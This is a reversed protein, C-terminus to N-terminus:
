EFSTVPAEKKRVWAYLWKGGDILMRPISVLGGRAFLSILIVIGGFVLEQYDELSTIEDLIYTVAVAGVVPGWFSQIGGIFVFLLIWFSQMVGYESPSLVALFHAWFAGVMGAFFCAVGWALVRYRTVNIGLHQALLNNQGAATVALGLRSHEVRYMIFLAVVTIALLLYYYPEPDLGFDYGAFSFHPVDFRGQDGGTYERQWNIARIIVESLALTLIVFYIGSLRLAIFGVVVAILMAAVGGLILGIWPSVDHEAALLGSTYAGVGMFAAQGISARGSLAMLRFGVTLVVWMMCTMYTHMVVRGGNLHPLFALLILALPVYVWLDGRLLRQQVQSYTIM